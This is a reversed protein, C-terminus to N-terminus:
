VNLLRSLGAGGGRDFALLDGTDELVLLRWRDTRSEDEELLVDMMYAAHAGFFNDPDTVYHIDCWSRWAWGLARLAYTKGTGPDGHWLVLQGGDAPRYDASYLRELGARVSQPYNEAIQEWVPASISRSIENAYTGYSWFSVPVRREGEDKAIAPEFCGRLWKEAEGLA